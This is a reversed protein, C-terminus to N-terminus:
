IVKGNSMLQEKKQNSQCSERAVEFIKKGIENEKKKITSSNVLPVNLAGLFNNVHTAGIGAHIMGLFDPIKLRFVNINHKIHFM